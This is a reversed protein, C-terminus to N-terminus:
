AAKKLPQKDNGAQKKLQVDKRNDNWVIKKIRFRGNCGCNQPRYQGVGIFLGHRRLVEAFVSETIVPDLIIVEFTAIWGAPIQPFRRPVRTGSGRRGDAHALILISKVEAPDVNQIIGPTLMALGSTFKQTWTKGRQGEIKEGWHKAAEKMGDHIAFAPIVMRTVGDVVELNMKSAWTRRDYDDPNEGEKKPEDHRHSQSYPAIGEITVIASTFDSFDDNQDYDM